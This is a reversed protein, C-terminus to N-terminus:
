WNAVSVDDVWFVTEEGPRGQYGGWGLLITRVKSLDLKGDPDVGWTTPQADALLVLARHWGPKSCRRLNGLIWTGGGEEVLQAALTRQSEGGPAVYTWLELATYKSLDVDNPVRLAPFAWADQDAVITTRVRLSAEGRHKIERDLTLETKVSGASNDRWVSLNGEGDFLIKRERPQRDSERANFQVCAIDQRGTDTMVLRAKMIKGQVMDRALLRFDHYGRAWAQAEVTAVAEGQVTLGETAECKVKAKVPQDTYNNVWARVTVQQGPDVGVALKEARIQEKPPRPKGPETEAQLFVHKAALQPDPTPSYDPAPVPAELGIAKVDAEALGRVYVPMPGLKLTLSNQSQAAQVQRGVVDVVPGLARMDIQSGDGDWAVVVAENPGRRFAVLYGKDSLKRYGLCRAEGLQRLLHALAIYAPKPTLDDRLIGWLSTSGEFFEKLYFYHFRAVGQSLAVAYARALYSAQEREISEYQGKEDPYARLGMETIWTPKSELGHRRLQERVGQLFPVLSEPSDYSHQNYIDFYSGVANEYVNEYFNGPTGAASGILVGFNADADKAGLYAAKLLAAYEWPHGDFFSINPENWVEFYRVRDGLDRVLRNVMRYVYIPDRPPSGSTQQGGEAPAQAWGPCDHFIQYVTLGHRQQIEAAQAYRGWDFKGEEKEVEGWQLRDRLQRVGALECLYCALDAQEPVSNPPYSWSIGADLCLPSDVPPRTPLEEIVGLSAEIHRPTLGPARADVVLRYYGPGLAPLPLVRQGKELSMTGSAGPVGQGDFDVLSWNVAVGQNDQLGALDFTALSTEGSRLVNGRATLAIRLGVTRGFSPQALFVPGASDDSPGRVLLKMVAQTAGEPATGVAEYRAWDHRWFIWRSTATVLSKGQANRFVLELRGDARALAAKVQAAFLYVQGPEVAVPESVWRAEKGPFARIAIAPSGEPGGNKAFWLDGPREAEIHWAWQGLIVADGDDASVSMCLGTFLVLIAFGRLVLPDGGPRVQSAVARLRVDVRRSLSTLSSTRNISGSDQM